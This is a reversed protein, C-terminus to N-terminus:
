WDFGLDPKEGSYPTFVVPCMNVILYMGDKMDIDISTLEVPATSGPLKVYKLLYVSSMIDANQGTENLKSCYCISAYDLAHGEEATITWHRAPIDKGIQWVGVPVTVSKLEPRSAIELNIQQKLANLEELTMTSLDIDALAYSSLLMIAAIFAAIRKM